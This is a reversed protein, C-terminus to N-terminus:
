DWYRDLVRDVDGGTVRTTDAAFDIPAVPTAVTESALVEARAECEDIERLLLKM